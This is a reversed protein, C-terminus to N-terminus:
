LRAGGCGTLLLSSSCLVWTPLTFGWLPLSSFARFHKWCQVATLLLVKWVALTTVHASTSSVPSMPRKEPVSPQPLPQSFRLLYQAYVLIIFIWQFISKMERINHNHPTIKIWPFFLSLFAQQEGLCWSMRDGGHSHKMFISELLFVFLFGSLIILPFFILLIVNMEAGGFACCSSTAISALSWFFVCNVPPPSPLILCCLAHPPPPGEQKIRGLLYLLYHLPTARPPCIIWWPGKLSSFPVLGM